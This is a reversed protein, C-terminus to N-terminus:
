TIILSYMNVIFYLSLSCQFRSPNTHMQKPSHTCIRSKKQWKTMGNEYCYGFPTYGYHRLACYCFASDSEEEGREGERQSFFMDITMFHSFKHIFLFFFLTIFYPNHLPIHIYKQCQKKKRDKNYIKPPPVPSIKISISPYSNNKHHIFNWQTPITFSTSIM